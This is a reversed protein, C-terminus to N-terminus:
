LKMDPKIVIHGPTENYLAQVLDDRHKLVARQNISGKDTVEGLDISPLEAMLMLRTVRNASGTATLSLDTVLSQFKELVAPAKLVESMPADAPLGALSRVAQTPFVLAGVENRNLGTIVVDQVYPAGGAIVRGRLPGVSVFTGTALKFDEAIRGDFRLGRNRDAPDIWLVADGTCFFGEEDFAEATAEPARWYGPTINPGRYRLETKGEIPVLKCEMGPTPLGLEGAKIDPGSPFLGYPSSETMGFGCTMIIREGIEREASEFLSDWVSQPLSAGAYFFMKVRSFLKGRLADDTKMANAIAEFGTPVNFYLTPAVERLNRLTEGVLAPTPKGEDIYLTGGNNLVMGVNHNGGFTHNWPLWDVLVPKEETLIPMSHRMQQQNACWMRNTNIVAKPLKTSGSTFLFKVITDPGTAAQAADVAPTPDTALLDALLTAQRGKLKPHDANRSVAIECDAPATAALAPGYREGDEAWILGPTLTDIIHRLKGYDKSITSYAPSAPSFPIGVYICGLALLAHDIGNDSLVIVPREASLGRDLLAQGIRRAAALAEAYSVRRWDGLRGDPLRERQAVFTEDPTERAWHVLRDSMREGFPALPQEASLYQVGGDAERVQVRTVGFALPRYKPAATNSSM